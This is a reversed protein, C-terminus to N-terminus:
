KSSMVDTGYNWGFTTGGRREFNGGRKHEGVLVEM